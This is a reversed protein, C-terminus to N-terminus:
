IGNARLRRGVVGNPGGFRKMKARTVTFAIRCRKKCRAHSGDTENEKDAVDVRSTGSLKKQSRVSECCFDLVGVSWMFRDVTFYPAGNHCTWGCTDGDYSVM